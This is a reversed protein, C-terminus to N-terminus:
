MTYVGNKGNPRGGVGAQMSNITIAPPNRKYRSNFKRHTLINPRTHARARSPCTSLVSIGPIYVTAFVKPRYVNIYKISLYVKFETVPAKTIKVAIVGTTFLDIRHKCQSKASASLRRNPFANDAACISKTCLQWRRKLYIDVYVWETYMSFKIARFHLLSDVM